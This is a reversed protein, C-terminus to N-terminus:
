SEETIKMQIPRYTSGLLSYLRWTLWCLAITFLQVRTVSAVGVTIFSLGFLAVLLRGGIQTPGAWMIVLILLTADYIPSYLSLLLTCAATLAWSLRGGGDRLWARWLFPLAAAVLAFRLIGIGHGSALRFAAGIDVYKSTQFIETPSSAAVYFLKLIRFYGAIGSAGVLMLSLVALTMAGVAFGLLMRWQLTLVLMPVCLVLLPPKYLLLALAVGAWIDRDKYHLCFAIALVCFGFASTQGGRITYLQFPAFALSALLGPIRWEKPLVLTKSTFLYGACILGISMVTWVLYAWLFPIQGLLAFPLVFWPAYVFPLSETHSGGESEFLADQLAVDYLREHPYQVFIRGANHFARFDGGDYGQARAITFAFFLFNTAILVSCYTSVRQPTFWRM